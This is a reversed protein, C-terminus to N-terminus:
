VCLFLLSGPEATSCTSARSFYVVVFYTLCPSEPVLPPLWCVFGELAHLCLPSASLSQFGLGCHCLFGLGVVPLRSSVPCGDAAIAQVFYKALATFMDQLM